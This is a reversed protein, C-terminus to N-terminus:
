RLQAPNIHKLMSDGVIAVNPRSHQSTQRTEKNNTHPNRNNRGNVQRRTTASITHDNTSDDQTANVDDKNSEEINLNSFRNSVQINPNLVETQGTGDFSDHAGSQKSAKDNKDKFTTNLKNNSDEVLLRMATILSKNEQEANKAKGQLDALIYSLCAGM